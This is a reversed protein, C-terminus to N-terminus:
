KAEADRHQSVTQNGYGAQLRVGARNEKRAGAGAAVSAM